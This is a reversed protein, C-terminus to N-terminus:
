GAAEATDETRQALEQLEQVIELTRQGMRQGRAIWLNQQLERLAKQIPERRMVEPSFFGEAGGLLRMVRQLPSQGHRDTLGRPNAVFLGFSNGELPGASFSAGMMGSELGVLRNGHHRGDPTFKGLRPATFRKSWHKKVAARVKENKIRPHAEGGRGAQLVRYARRRMTAASVEPLPRGRMDKGELFSTRIIITLRHCFLGVARKVNRDTLDIRIDPADFAIFTKSRARGHFAQRRDVLAGFVDYVKGAM